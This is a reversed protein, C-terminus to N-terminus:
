FGGSLVDHLTPRDLLNGMLGEFPPLSVAHDYAEVVSGRKRHHTGVVYETAPELDLM